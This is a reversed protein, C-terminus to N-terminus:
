GIYYQRPRARLSRKKQLNLLFALRSRFGPAGSGHLFWCAFFDLVICYDIQKVEKFFYRWFSTPILQMKASPLNHYSVGHIPPDVQRSGDDSDNSTLSRPPLQDQVRLLASAPLLSRVPSRNPTLSLPLSRRQPLKRSLILLLPLTQPPVLVPVPLLLLLLRLTTM